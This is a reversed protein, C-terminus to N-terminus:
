ARDATDTALVIVAASRPLRHVRGPCDSTEISVTLPNGALNVTLVTPWRGDIKRVLGGGVLDTVTDGRRVQDARITRTKDM